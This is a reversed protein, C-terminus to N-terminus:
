RVKVGTVVAVEWGGAVQLEWEYLNQIAHCPSGNASILLRIAIGYTIPTGTSGSRRYTINTKLTSSSSTRWQQPYLPLTRAHM